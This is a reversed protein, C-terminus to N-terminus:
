LRNSNKSAANKTLYICGEHVYSFKLFLGSVKSCYHLQITTLKISSSERKRYIKGQVRQDRSMWYLVGNSGQKIKQTSSLYRLRKKNFECGQAAKRLETVERLLWGSERGREATLKPQKGGASSPSEKQRKLSRKNVSMSNYHLLITNPDSIARLLLARRSYRIYLCTSFLSSMCLYVDSLFLLTIQM